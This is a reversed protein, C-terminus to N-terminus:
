LAEISEARVQMLSHFSTNGKKFLFATDKKGMLNEKARKDGLANEQPTTQVEVSVVDQLDKLSSEVAKKAKARAKRASIRSRLKENGTKLWKKGILERALGPIKIYGDDEKHSGATGTRLHALGCLEQPDSFNEKEDEMATVQDHQM